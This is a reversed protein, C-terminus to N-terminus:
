LKKKPTSAFEAVFTPLLSQKLMFATTSLKKNWQKVPLEEQMYLYNKKLYANVLFLIYQIKTEM